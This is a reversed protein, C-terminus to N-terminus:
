FYFFNGAIPALGLSKVMKTLALHNVSSSLLLVFM